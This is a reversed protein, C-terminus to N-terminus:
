QAQKDKLLFNLWIFMATGLVNMVLDKQADPILVFIDRKCMLNQFFENILGLINFILAIYLNKKKTKIAFVSLYQSIKFCVILAFFIHMLSNFNWEATFNVHFKRGRDLVVLILYAVFVLNFRTYFAQALYIKNHNLIELSLAMAFWYPLITLNQTYLILCFLCIEVIRITILRM